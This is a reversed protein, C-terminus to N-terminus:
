LPIICPREILRVGKYGGKYDLRNIDRGLGKRLDKMYKYGMRAMGKRVKERSIGSMEVIKGEAINDDEGGKECFGEFWDLLEDNSAKTEQEAKLFEIPTPPIGSKYFRMAYELILGIVEDRYEDIIKAGIGTDAIYEM